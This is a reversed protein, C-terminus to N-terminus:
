VMDEDRQLVHSVEEPHAEPLGEHRHAKISNMARVAGVASRFKSLALMRPMVAPLLDQGGQAAQALQTRQQTAQVLWPHNLAEAATMRQNPDVTLLRNVFDKATQIVV